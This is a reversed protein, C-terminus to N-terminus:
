GLVAAAKRHVSAPRAAIGACDTMLTYAHAQVIPYTICHYLGAGQSSVCGATGPPSTVKTHSLLASLICDRHMPTWVLAHVNMSDAVMGALILILLTIQQLQCSEYAHAGCPISAHVGM